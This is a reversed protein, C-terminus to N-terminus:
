PRPTVPGTTKMPPAMPAPTPTVPTTEGSLILLGTPGLTATRMWYTETPCTGPQETRTLSMTTTLRLEGTPDGSSTMTLPHSSTSPHRGGPANLFMEDHHSDLTTCAGNWCVHLTAAPHMDFWTDAEIDIGSAQSSSQPTACAGAGQNVCGAMASVAIVAVAIM